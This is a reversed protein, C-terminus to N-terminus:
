VTHFNLGSTVEKIYEARIVFDGFHEGPLKDKAYHRLMPELIELIEAEGINERYLKNLRDGNFSAGLYLNYKGPAKGIFAIEGLGPRACGNPCGTMRIIIEQERLGANDLVDDLKDILTPLYRESEAMALGCTPFAVCAMSNRRLASNEKGDTLGYQVVLREINEKEAESVNAVILNQNPTLRFDGKHIKAIERLGSQLPYNAHDAVRGNQIFLTLHWMGKNEVWGYSDGNNDFSFERAPKMDWGLRDNLEQRIWDLGMRDVTYKFRAYKRESRDGYDRQITLIKEAVEEVKQTPCFGLVKAIQPYTKDDGHTMGMGGGVTVNFGLLRGNKVIAIFGIDQTYIDVDNSPPVAVGIKFKRPLYVKGYMPETEEKTDVVKEEDLWIEHYARTKPLLHESIKKSVQYVKEHVASQYPNVNCMVNRNVDGCAAITDMLSANMEQMSKKMNWKLIGHLQFTQRTTLKMTNNGYKQSLEDMKLWQEPTAVGGPLRVRVMFQYAPELKQKKRELRLDRDDQMYSGHFKLLKTQEEPIGATLRDEFHKVLEGRLNSSQEKILETESPPGADYKSYKTM